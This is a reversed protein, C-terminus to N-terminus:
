RVSVEVVRDAFSAYSGDDWFVEGEHLHLLVTTRGQDLSLEAERAQIVRDVRGHSDRHKFTPNLLKRGQLDPAFLPRPSDTPGLFVVWGVHITEVRAPDVEFPPSSPSAPVPGHFAVVCLAAVIGIWKVVAEKLAL